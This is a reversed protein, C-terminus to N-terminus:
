QLLKLLSNLLPRGWFFIKVFLFETSSVFKKKKMKFWNIWFFASFSPFFFAFFLYSLYFVILLIIPLSLDVIDRIVNFIFQSFVGILLCFM